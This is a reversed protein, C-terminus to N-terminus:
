WEDLYAMKGEKKLGALTTMLLGGKTKQENHCQYCKEKLIPQIVAEFIPTDETFVLETEEKNNPFLYDEGHTLSAGYHGTVLLVVLSLSLVPTFIRTKVVPQYIIWLGYCLFSLVIGSYKHWTLLSATYGEEKSLFFGMLAAINATIATIALV